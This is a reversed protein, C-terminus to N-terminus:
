ATALTRAARRRMSAGVLGFGGIMMMWTAPEPVANQIRGQALVLNDVTPWLFGTQPQVSTLVMNTIPGTSVFGLFSSTTAGVITQTTTGGGDTVSLTINGAAFAGGIDSGFFNGGIGRVTSTFGSFTISDLAQNTSLWPNATTGAGYFNGPTAATYTYAGATRTIPSTTQGLISFGTYTDTGPNSTAATFAALNTYVTIAAQSTSAAMLAVAALAFKIKMNRGRNM